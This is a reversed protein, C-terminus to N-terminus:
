GQVRLGDSRFKLVAQRLPKLLLEFWESSCLLFAGGLLVKSSNLLGNAEDAPLNFSTKTGQNGQNVVDNFLRKSYLIGNM